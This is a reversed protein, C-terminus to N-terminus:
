KCTIKNTTTPYLEEIREKWIQAKQLNKRVGLGNEYYHVLKQMGRKFGREATFKYHQFAKTHNQPVGYGKEYMDAILAHSPGYEKDIGLKCWYIAQEYDCRLYMFVAMHLQFQCVSIFPRRLTVTIEEFKRKGM